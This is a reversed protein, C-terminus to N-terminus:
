WHGRLRRIQAEMRLDTVNITLIRQIDHKQTSNKLFKCFNLHPRFCWWPYSFYEAYPKYALALHSFCFERVKQEKSVQKNDTSDNRDKQEGM